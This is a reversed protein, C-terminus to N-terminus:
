IVNKVVKMWGDHYKREDMLKTGTEIETHDKEKNWERLDHIIFQFYPKM